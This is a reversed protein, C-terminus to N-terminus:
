KKREARDLMEKAHPHAPNLKLTLSFQRRAEPVKGLKALVVGCNFHAEDSDPLLRLVERFFPLAEASAGLADLLHGIREYANPDHPLLRIVERWEELARATEGHAELFRAYNEHLVWDSPGVRLAAAYDDAIQQIRKPTLSANLEDIQRKWEVDRAMHGYQQTFPARQLRQCVEEFVQLREWDTWALRRACDEISPTGAVGHATISPPLTKVLEDFFARTLLYTGNFNFHVHEYFFEAGAIGNSSAAMMWREVDVLKEPTHKNSAHLRISANIQDDARFRLQDFEKALNFNTRATAKSGLALECQALHYFLEAFEDEGRVSTSRPVRNFLAYAETFRNSAMLEVGQVFPNEFSPGEKRTLSRHMSAFPPCDRLNVAVTGVFVKTGAEDGMRIIDDLNNRFHDQVTAMRPDNRHMRQKLFMEMGGWETPGRERFSSLLQVVRFRKLWLSARIFALSPAQPGFITGSGFPGVVENNGMYILWVDGELPVCDQAIERIVHSNIATMAVNIVEFRNSPFKLELMAQLMRPLGFAPEPDGMATSEGFVFIRTTGPAKHPSFMVPQPTRAITRPFFRIGFQRNDTLVDQGNIRQKLFFSTPYGYGSMRLFVEVMALLLLPVFLAMVRFIWRQRSSVERKRRPLDPASQPTAPRNLAAFLLLGAWSEPLFLGFVPWCSVSKLNRQKVQPM